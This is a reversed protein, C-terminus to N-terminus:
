QKEEIEGEGETQRKEVFQSEEAEEIEMEAEDVEKEAEKVETEAEEAEKEAEKVEMKVEEVEEEKFKRKTGQQLKEEDEKLADEWKEKVKDKRLQAEFESWRKDFTKKATENRFQEYWPYTQAHALLNQVMPKSRRGANRTGKVRSETWAVNSQGPFFQANFK